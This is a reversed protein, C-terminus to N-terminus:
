QVHRQGGSHSGTKGVAVGEWWSAELLGKDEEMLACVSHFCCAGAKTHKM